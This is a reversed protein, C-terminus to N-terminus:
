EPLNNIDLYLNAIITLCYSPSILFISKLM